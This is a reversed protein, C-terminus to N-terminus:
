AKEEKPRQSADLNEQFDKLTSVLMQKEEDSKATEIKLSWIKVFQTKLAIYRAEGDEMSKLSEHNERIVRMTETLMKHRQQEKNIDGSTQISVIRGLEIWGAAIMHELDDIMSRRRSMMAQMNEVYDALAMEGVQKYHSEFHYRLKYPPMPENNDEFFKRIAPLTQGEDHMAEAATRLKSNCVLCKKHVIIGSSSVM